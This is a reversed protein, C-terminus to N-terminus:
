MKVRYGQIFPLGTGVRKQYEVYDEGFFNLLYIEEEFIRERFFRWSVITYGVLCLPNCLIIQTGISWLFWGVYAPHRCLSYIGHTVLQHNRQKRYQVYHNFNTSATIMSAKRIVEGLVTLLLGFVSIYRLQKLGPFIFWEVTFEIWSAAAAIKYERSHDLLYSELTLSRPNTVATTYFESWHFVSLCTLYWGFHTWSSTQFSLILGFGFVLGLFCGRVAVKYADKSNFVVWVVCNTLAVYFIYILIWWDDWLNSLTQSLYFLTSLLFSAAGLLFASLSINEPTSPAM